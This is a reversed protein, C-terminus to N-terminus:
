LCLTDLLAASMPNFAEDVEIWRDYDWIEVKKGAGIIAVDKTIGAYDRLTQPLLIRGQKDPTVEVAGSFLWRRLGEGEAGPLDSIQKCIGEWQKVSYVSLYKGKTGRAIWFTEGLTERLKVPFNTRGKADISHYHAGTMGCSSM